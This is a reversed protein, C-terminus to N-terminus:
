ARRLQVCVPQLTPYLPSPICLEEYTSIATGVTQDLGSQDSEVGSSQSPILNIMAFLFSDITAELTRLVGAIPATVGFQAFISHKGIVTGLLTQHVQVFDDLSNKITESDADGFPPTSEMASTDGNLDNIITNFSAQATNAAAQVDSPSSSTSLQSIAGNLNGSVTTVIGINAVVQSVSLAALADKAVLLSAFLVTSFRVLM